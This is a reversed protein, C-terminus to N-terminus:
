LHSTRCITSSATESIQSPSLFFFLSYALFRAIPLRKMMRGKRFTDLM